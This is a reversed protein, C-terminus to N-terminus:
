SGGPVEAGLAPELLALARRKADETVAAYVDATIALGAHGLVASVVELPVGRDLLLTAATHRSAHFRRGGVGAAECWGHWTRSVNRGDLPTGIETTFVHGSDDWVRAALREAAQRARHERLAELTGAV